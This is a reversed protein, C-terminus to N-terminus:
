ALERAAREKTSLKIVLSFAHPMPNIENMIAAFCAASGDTNGDELISAKAQKLTLGDRM